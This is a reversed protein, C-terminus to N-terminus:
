PLASGAYCELVHAVASGDPLRLIARQVLVTGAPCDRGAGRRSEVLERKFGLPAVVKGFPTTTQALQANMEPTLRAPVYWNQAQSLLRDGCSLRVHRSGLAAQPSVGLLRRLDAPAAMLQGPVQQAVVRAPNALGQQECWQELAATASDHSALMRELGDVPTAPQIACATLSALAASPLIRKM